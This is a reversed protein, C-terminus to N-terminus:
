GYNDFVYDTVTKGSVCKEGLVGASAYLQLRKWRFVDYTVNVPIGIYHLTQQGNVYHSDSGSTIDSTLNTYSLGSGIGLRDTIKYTFTLGARIPQRHKINTSIEKGQNFLLIGLMPSDEWGADEFGASAISGTTGKQTINSNIGGSSYIEVSLSPNHRKSATATPRYAYNRNNAYNVAPTSAPRHTPAPAATDNKQKRLSAEPQSDAVSAPTRAVEVAEINESPLNLVASKAAQEPKSTAPMSIRNNADTLRTDPSCAVRNDSAPPVDTPRHRYSLALVAAICAAAMAARKSLLIFRRRKAHRQKEAKEITEWLSDPPAMEFDSMRDHLDHLWKDKM